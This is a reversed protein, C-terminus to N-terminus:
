SLYVGVSIGICVGGVLPEAYKWSDVKHIMYYIQQGIFHCVPFLAGLIIFHPLGTLVTFPAGLWVGRQLGKRWGYSRGEKEGWMDVYDGWHRGIRGIAGAEEGMSPSVAVLWALMLLLPTKFALDYVPLGYQVLVGLQSSLAISFFAFVLATSVVKGALLRNLIRSKTRALRVASIDDLWGGKIAYMAAFFLISIAYIM